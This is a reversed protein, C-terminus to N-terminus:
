IIIISNVFGKMGGKNIDIFPCQKMWLVCEIYRNKYFINFVVFECFFIVLVNNGLIDEDVGIWLRMEGIVM